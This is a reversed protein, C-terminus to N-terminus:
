KIEAYLLGTVWEDKFKPKTFTVKFGSSELKEKIKEYGRHYELVINSFRQLTEVSSSLIVDYECDECDLKLVGHHINYINVLDNLTLLQIQAGNNSHKLRVATGKLSKDISVIRKTKSLGINMPIIKDELQNLVINEKMLHYNEVSPEIAIVKKAGKSIFYLSSDGVNAGVDVVIKSSYDFQDYEHKFFIDNISSNIWNKFQFNTGNISIVLKERDFTCYKWSNNRTLFFIEPKNAFIISGTKLKLKVPYKKRFINYCIHLPNRYTRFISYM